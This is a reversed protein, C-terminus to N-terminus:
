KKELGGWTRAGLPKPLVGAPEVARATVMVGEAAPCGTYPTAPMVGALARPLPATARAAAPACSHKVAVEGLGAPAPASVSLRVPWPEPSKARVPVGVGLGAVKQRVAATGREGVWRVGRELRVRVARSERPPAEGGRGRRIM